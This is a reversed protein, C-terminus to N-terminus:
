TTLFDLAKDRDMDNSILAEKIRDRSFGLEQFQKSLDLYTRAKQSDNEFLLLALESQYPDYGEESLKNVLCLHEIVEKDQGLKQMARAARPRSFGMDVLGDVSKQAEKSLLTYPDIESPSTLDGSSSSSGPSLPSFASPTPPLPSYRNWSSIIDKPIEVGNQQVNVNEYDPAPESNTKLNLPDFVDKLDIQPPQDVQQTQKLPKHVLEVNEYIHSDDVKTVIGNPIHENEDKAKVSINTNEYTVENNRRVVSSLTETTAFVSKLEELDNLTAREFRDFPDEEKEFLSVDVSNDTRQQIDNNQAPSIQIPTLLTNSLGAKLPEPLSNTTTTQTKTVTRNVTTNIQGSELWPDEDSDDSSSSRTRRNALREEEARRQAQIQKEREEAWQLVGKEVEFDYELNTARTVSPLNLDSSLLILIFLTDDDVQKTISTWSKRLRIM